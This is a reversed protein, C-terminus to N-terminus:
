ACNQCREVGNSLQWQVSGDPRVATGCQKAPVNAVVNLHPLDAMLAAAAPAAEPELSAPLQEALAAPLLALAEQLAAYSQDVQMVLCEREAPYMVASMDLADIM